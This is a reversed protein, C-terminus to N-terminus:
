QYQLEELNVCIMGILEQSYTPRFSFLVNIHLSLSKLAFYIIKKTVLTSQMCLNFIALLQSNIKCQFQNQISYEWVGIIITTYKEYCFIIFNAIEM